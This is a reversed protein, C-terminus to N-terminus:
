GPRFEQNVERQIKKVSSSPGMGLIMRLTFAMKIQDHVLVTIRSKYPVMNKWSAKLFHETNM